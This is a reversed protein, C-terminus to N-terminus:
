TKIAYYVSLAEVSNETNGTGNVTTSTSASHAHTPDNLVLGANSQNAGATTGSFSHTHDNSSGTTTASQTAANGSAGGTTQTPAPATYGHTHDASQGGTNGSFNHTHGNDTLSQGTAAASVTTSSTATHTHLAIGNAVYTGVTNGPTGGISRLHRGTDTMHHVIFNGGSIGYVASALAPFHAQPYTSGDLLIYQESGTSTGSRAVISTGPDYLFAHVTGLPVYAGAGLAASVATNIQAATPTVAQTGLNPFQNQLVAKILRVHADGQNVGDAHAPNTDVLQSVYTASELPM